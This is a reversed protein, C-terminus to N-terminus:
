LVLQSWVEVVPANRRTVCVKHSLYSYNETKMRMKYGNKFHTDM